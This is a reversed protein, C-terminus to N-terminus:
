FSSDDNNHIATLKALVLRQEKRNLKIFSQSIDDEKENIKNSMHGNNTYKNITFKQLPSNLINMNNRFAQRKIQDFFFLDFFEKFTKVTENFNWDANVLRGEHFCHDLQENIQLFALCLRFLCLNFELTEFGATSKFIRRFEFLLGIENVGINKRMTYTNLNVELKNEILNQRILFNIGSLAEKSIFPKPLEEFFAIIITNLESINTIKNIEKHISDLNNLSLRRTNIRDLTVKNNYFSKYLEKTKTKLALENFREFYLRLLTPMYFIFPQTEIKNEFGLIRESYLIEMYSKNTFYIFKQEKIYIEFDKLTALQETKKLSTTRKAKFLKIAHQATFGKKYILYACIVLGTRGRGAHCHVAVKCNQKLVFDMTKVIKLLTLIDTTEHDRWGFNYFAIGLKYFEEPLYSLGSKKNIGDGCYPHEGPEQLCFIAQINHSKNYYWLPM